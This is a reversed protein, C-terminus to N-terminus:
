KSEKKILGHMNGHRCLGAFECLRGFSFCAKHNTSFEEKKIARLALDIKEFAAETMEEPITDKIFSWEVKGDKLRKSMALYAAQRSDTFESYIALQQSKKVATKPYSKKLDGCTKNDIVMTEGTKLKAIFDMVLILEDGLENKISKNVQVDIIEEFLPLVEEIYTDIMRLGVANLYNFARHQNGEPDDIDFEEEPIESKFFVLENNGTWKNMSKSFITKAELVNVPKKDKVCNLVYNLSEDIASGFLLPTFTKDVALKDVYSFKFKAPCLNYLEVRSHSIKINSM